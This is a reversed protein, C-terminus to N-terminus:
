YDTNTAYFIEKYRKVPSLISGIIQHVDAIDVLM